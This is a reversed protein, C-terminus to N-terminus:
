RGAQVDLVHGIVPATYEVPVSFLTGAPATTGPWPSPFDLPVLLRLESPPNLYISAHLLNLVRHLADAVARWEPVVDHFSPSDTM